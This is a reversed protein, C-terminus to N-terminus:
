RRDRIPGPPESACESSYVKYGAAPTLIRESLIDTSPESIADPLAAKREVRFDPIVVRTVVSYRGVM